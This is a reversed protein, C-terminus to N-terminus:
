KVMLTQRDEVQMEGLDEGSASRVPFEEDSMNGESVKSVKVSNM